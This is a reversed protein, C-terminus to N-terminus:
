EVKLYELIIDCRKNEFSSGYYCNVYSTRPDAPAYVSFRIKDLETAIASASTKTSWISTGKYGEGNFIYNPFQYSSSTSAANYM